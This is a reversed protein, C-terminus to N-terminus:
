RSVWDGQMFFISYAFRSDRCYRGWRVVYKKVHMDGSYSKMKCAHVFESVSFYTCPNFLYAVDINLFYLELFFIIVLINNYRTSMDSFAAFAIANQCAM